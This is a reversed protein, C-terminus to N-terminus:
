EAEIGKIALWLRLLADAPKADQAEKDACRARWCESAKLRELRVAHSCLPHLVELLEATMPAPFRHEAEPVEERRSLKWFYGSGADGLRRWALATGALSPSPILSCLSPAAVNPLLFTLDEM